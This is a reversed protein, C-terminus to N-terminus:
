PSVEALRATIDPIDIGSDDSLLQERYDRVKKPESPYVRNRVILCRPLEDDMNDNQDLQFMPTQRPTLQYYHQPSFVRLMDDNGAEGKMSLTVGSNDPAELRVNCWVKFRGELHHSNNQIAQQCLNLSVDRFLPKWFSLNWESFRAKLFSRKLDQKEMGAKFEAACLRVYLCRDSDTLAVYIGVGLFPYKEALVCQINEIEHAVGNVFNEQWSQPNGIYSGICEVAM